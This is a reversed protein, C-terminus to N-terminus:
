NLNWGIGAKIYMYDFGLSGYVKEVDNAYILKESMIEVMSLNVGSYKKVCQLGVLDKTKRLVYSLSSLHIVQTITKYVSHSTKCTLCNDM